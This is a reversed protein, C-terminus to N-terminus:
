TRTKSRGGLCFENGEPDALVQDTDWQLVTAGLAAIRDRDAEPENSYLDLHMRNKTRKPENSPRFALRPALDYPAPGPEAGAGTIHLLTRDPAAPHHFGEGTWALGHPVLDLSTGTPDLPCGTAAAWFQALRPPDVADIAISSLRPRDRGDDVVVEYENGEPDRGEGEDIGDPPATIEFRVRNRTTKPEPVRQLYIPLLRLKADDIRGRGDFQPHEARFKATEEPNHRVLESDYGLLRGWFRTLVDPDACDMVIQTLWIM